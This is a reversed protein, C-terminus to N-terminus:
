YLPLGLYPSTGLTGPYGPLYSGGWPAGLGGYSPNLATPGAFGSHVYTTPAAVSPAPVAAPPPRAPEARSIMTPDSGLPPYSGIQQTQYSQPVPPYQGAMPATSYQPVMIVQQQAQYPQPAYGAIAGTTAGTNPITAATAYPNMSSLPPSVYTAAPPPPAVTVAQYQPPQPTQPQVVYGAGLGQPMQFVQPAQYTPAQYTPAQYIPAQYNPAQYTTQAPSSASYGISGSTAPAPPIYWPNSQARLEAAPTAVLVTLLMAHQLRSNM